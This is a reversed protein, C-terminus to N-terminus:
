PHVYVTSTTPTEARLSRGDPSLAVRGRTTPRGDIKVLLDLTRDDVPTYAYTVVLDVGQLPYDKGDFRGTWEMHTVGGRRGILDYRMRVGDGEPEIVWTGRAYPAEGGTWESRAVDLRWTGFFALGLM